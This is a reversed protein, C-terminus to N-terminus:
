LGGAEGSNTMATGIRAYNEDGTWQHHLKGNQGSFIYVVGCEIKDAASARSAAVIIEPIVDGNVDGVALSSSFCDGYNEGSLTFLPKLDHSFVYVKGKYYHPIPNVGDEDEIDTATSASIIWEELGDGNIDCHCYSRRVSRAPTRRGFSEM